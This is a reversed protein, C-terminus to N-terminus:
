LIVAIKGYNDERYDDDDNDNGIAFDDDDDDNDGCGNDSDDVDDNKPLELLSSLSM